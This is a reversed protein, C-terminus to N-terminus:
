NKVEVFVTIVGPMFPKEPDPPYFRTQRPFYWAWSANKVAGRYREILTEIIADSQAKFGGKGAKRYTPVFFV